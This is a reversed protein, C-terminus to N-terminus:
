KILGDKAAGHRRRCGKSLPATECASARAAKGAAVKASRADAVQQSRPEYITVVAHVPMADDAVHREILAMVPAFTGDKGIAM